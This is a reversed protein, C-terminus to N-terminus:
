SRGRSRSYWHLENVIAGDPIEALPWRQCLLYRRQPRTPSPRIDLVLYASGYGRRGVTVLYEGPALTPIGDVTLRCETYPQRSRARRM